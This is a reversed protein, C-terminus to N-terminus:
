TSTYSVTDQIALMNLYKKRNEFKEKSDLNDIEIIIKNNVTGSGQHDHPTTVTETKNYRM